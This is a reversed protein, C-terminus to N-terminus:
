RIGDEKEGKMEARYERLKDALKPKVIKPIEDDTIIGRKKYQRLLQMMNEVVAYQREYGNWMALMVEQDQKVQEIYELATRRAKTDPHSFESKGCLPCFKPEISSSFVHSCSCCMYKRLVM